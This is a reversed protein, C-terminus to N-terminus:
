RCATASAPRSTTPTTRPRSRSRAPASTAARGRRRRHDPRRSRRVPHLVKRGVLAAYREDDPISRSPPTAWSRRRAPRRSPSRTTRIPRATTACSTTASPGSRARARAHRHGGPGVPEHPLGPVLQHAARRPLGPRRRLAAQLRRPRGHRLGRGDHLAARAWDVSAGLRRHQGSIVGRTENIFQWMRELYRERGLSDRSEGEKALIQDLVVQAAISAHDVGPVWLTPHGQMRARRIM